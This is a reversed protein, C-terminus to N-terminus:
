AVMLLCWFSQNRVWSTAIVCVADNDALVLRPLHVDSLPWGPDHRDVYRQDLAEHSRFRSGLIAISPDRSLRIHEFILAYTAHVMEPLQVIHHDRRETLSQLCGM